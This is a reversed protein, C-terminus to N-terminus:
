VVSFYSTEYFPYFHFVFCKAVGPQKNRRNTKAGHSEAAVGGAGVFSDPLCDPVHILRSRVRQDFGTEIRPDIEEIRRVHIGSPSLSFISPWDSFFRFIACLSTTM